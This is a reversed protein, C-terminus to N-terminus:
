SRLTFSAFAVLKIFVLILLIFKNAQYMPDSLGGGDVDIVQALSGKKLSREEDVSNEIERKKTLKQSSKNHSLYIFSLYLLASKLGSPQQRKAQLLQSAQRYSVVNTHHIQAELHGWHKELRTGQM